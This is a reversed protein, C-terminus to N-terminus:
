HQHRSGPKPKVAKVAPTRNPIQSPRPPENAPSAVLRAVSGTPHVYWGPDKYHDAALGERVKVVTFMGGM